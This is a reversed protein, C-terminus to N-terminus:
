CPDESNCWECDSETCPALPEAQERERFDKLAAARVGRDGDDYHFVFEHLDGGFRYGDPATYRWCGALRDHEIKPRPIM